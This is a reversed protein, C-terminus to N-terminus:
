LVTQQKNGIFDGSSERIVLEYPLVERYVSLTKGAILDLLKEMSRVGIQHKPQRVTTLPPSFLSSLEIDDFGSVAIDRPVKYGHNRLARIAGIAMTDGSAVVTTFKVDTNNIFANLADFGGQVSPECNVILSQDVPLDREALAALYGNLRSHYLPINSAGALYCINKHGLNLMYSVMDKMARTNDITVNPIEDSGMYRLAAVIPYEAAYTRLKESPLSTSFTIIGDVMRQRLLEFCSEEHQSKGQSDMIFVNYNNARAVSEIGAYIDAFIANGLEPITVLINRTQQMRFQQALRNPHYNLREAAELVHQKTEPLVNTGDQFVRSVTAISVGAERAVDRITPM